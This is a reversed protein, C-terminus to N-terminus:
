SELLEVLGFHAHFVWGIRRGDFAPAPIPRHLTHFGHERAHAMAGDLDQVEYCLHVLRQGQELQRTVPSDDGLPEILEVVAGHLDVFGVAVRQAADRTAEVEPAVAAISRVALGIHHLRSGEGFPEYPQTM